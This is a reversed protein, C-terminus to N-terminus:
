QEKGALYQKIMGNVFYQLREMDGKLYLYGYLAELGTAKRYQGMTANKAKSHTNTNRGRKYVDLEDESLEEMIQDIYDAQNVAKVIKSVEVHYKHPQMNSHTVFYKKVLLDLISDGMYALALPSYQYANVQETKVSEEM